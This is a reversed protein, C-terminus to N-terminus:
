GLRARSRGPKLHACYFQYLASYFQGFGVKLNLTLLRKMIAVRQSLQFGATLYLVYRSLRYFPFLWEIRRNRFARYAGASNSIGGRGFVALGKETRHINGRSALYLDIAWDAAIFSQGVLDCGRLVSTRLVSYFIGHSIWCNDFFLCFREEISGVLSFTVLNSGTPERGEFCNPSTSAVYDQHEELFRINEELFDPSRVDDCAAWMFYPALAQDLVFKFNLAAGINESQRIYRIRQDKCAYEQCIAATKDTSANDSIILEFDTFSQQAMSDLASRLTAEGNYVPVGISVLPTRKSM